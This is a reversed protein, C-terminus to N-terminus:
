RVMYKTDSKSLQGTKIEKPVKLGKSAIMIETGVRKTQVSYNLSFEFQRNGPYLSKVESANDYTIIWPRKLYFSTKALKQHDSLEYFNTYLTSGKKFYPPDICFFSRKPLSCEADVLFEIADKNTLHIRSAYKKVRKIRDILNDKNFRCNIKYNGKQTFGGIIGANKIIGSRNTRNLFFTSFALDLTNFDQPNRQIERQKYWEEVTVSTRIIKEVLEDTNHLVSHWFSWISIDIDNIHIDSVYGEYLLTLALGCGGAYPEAYHVRELNNIRLLRAVTRFLCAKGGPYRLPSNTTAM